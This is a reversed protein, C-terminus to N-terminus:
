RYVQRFVSEVMPNIAKKQKDYSSHEIEEWIDRFEQFDWPKIIAILKFQGIGMEPKSSDIGSSYRSFTFYVDKENFKSFRMEEILEAIVNWLEDKKEKENWATLWRLEGNLKSKLTRLLMNKVM